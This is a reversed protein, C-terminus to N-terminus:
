ENIFTDQWAYKFGACFLKIGSWFCNVLNKWGKTTRLDYDERM